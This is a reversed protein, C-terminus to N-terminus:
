KIEVIKTGFNTIKTFLAVKSEINNSILYDIKQWHAVHCMNKKEAKSIDALLVVKSSQQIMTQENEAVMQNSNSIGNEDFAGCSLFAWKATYNKLNINTQPGVLLGSEPYLIGGTVFVEAGSKEKKEKDIQYAIIISNTIIRIKKNAIFAAMQFTTSGGDIMIVDGTEILDSAQQAIKIKESTFQSQRYALPLMASENIVNRKIIGGWTKEVLGQESLEIFDRRITAPSADFLKCADDVLLENNTQLFELIRKQRQGQTM